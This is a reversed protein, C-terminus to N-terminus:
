VKHAVVERRATVRRSSVHLPNSGLMKFDLPLSELCFGLLIRGTHGFKPLIRLWGTPQVRPILVNGIDISLPITGELVDVM